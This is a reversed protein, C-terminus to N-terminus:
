RGDGEAQPSALGTPGRRLWRRIVKIAFRYHSASNPAPLEPAEGLLGEDYWRLFLRHWAALHAVLDHVSWGDGWVCPERVREPPISRILACLADYQEVIDRLLAANSDYRM